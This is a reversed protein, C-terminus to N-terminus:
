RKWIASIISALKNAQYTLEYIGITYLISSRSSASLSMASPPCFTRLRRPLIIYIMTQAGNMGLSRSAETQGRRHGTGSRVIEAMYAASNIVLAVTGATMRPLKVGMQPLGYFVILVQVLLPTGRLFEIYAGALVKLLKVRNMRLLAVVIGLLTGFIATCLALEVIHRRGSFVPAQHDFDAVM